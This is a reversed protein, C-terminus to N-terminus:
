QAPSQIEGAKQARMVAQLYDIAKPFIRDIMFPPLLFQPWCRSTNKSHLTHLCVGVTDSVCILRHDATVAKIFATDEAFNVEPYRVKGWVKKRFVYSFGFWLYMEAFEPNNQENLVTPTVSLGQWDFHLGIRQSLDWYALTRNLASFLYWASLKIFDAQHANMATVMNSIYAPSYYDDDDFCVIIEGRAREIMANRKGGISRRAPNHHYRVRSDSIGSIFPSPAPSDDDILWEISKEQQANVCAYAHPLFIERDRTPTIISILPDSM